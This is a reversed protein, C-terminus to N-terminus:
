WQSNATTKKTAVTWTIYRPQTTTRSTTCIVVQSVPDVEFACQVRAVSAGEIHVDGHRGLTALTVGDNVASPIGGIDLFLNKPGVGSVLHKNNPNAVVQRARDNLPKLRFVALRHQPKSALAM